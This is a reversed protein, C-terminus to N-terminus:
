AITQNEIPEQKTTDESITHVTNGSPPNNCLKIEGITTRPNLNYKIYKKAKNRSKARVWVHNPEQTAMNVRIRYLTLNEQTGM